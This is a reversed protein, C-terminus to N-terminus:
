FIAFKSFHFIKFIKTARFKWSKLLYLGESIRYYSCFIYNKKIPGGKVRGVVQRFAHWPTWHFRKRRLGHPQPSKWFNQSFKWFFNGALSGGAPPNVPGASGPTPGNKGPPRRFLRIVASHPLINLFFFQLFDQFLKWCSIRKEITNLIFFFSRASIVM